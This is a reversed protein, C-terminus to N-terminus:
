PDASRIDAAAASLYPTVPNEALGKLGAIVLRASLWAGKLNTHTHDRGFLERVREPGLRDYERAIIENLDLFAVGEARAVEQAWGAYRDKDRVVSGNKWINRPVPSAVIPIAGRARADASYRRLYWGYTHVVEHKGTLLNDIAETEEGTGRITGRARSTDNIAGGDNHGFQMIVIDGPELERLVEDWLGQTLYTRSSRGGRARNVVNVRTSDFYVPTLDGWGWEGNGGQGSGNRVTSDGIYVITPLAPDPRSRDQAAGAEQAHAHASALSGATLLALLSVGRGLPM